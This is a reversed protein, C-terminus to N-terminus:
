HIGLFLCRLPNPVKGFGAIVTGENDCAIIDGADSGMKINVCLKYDGATACAQRVEGYKACVSKLHCLTLAEERAVAGALTEHMPRVFKALVGVIGCAFLALAVLILRRSRGM